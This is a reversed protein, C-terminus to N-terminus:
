VTGAWRTAMARAIGPFTKSRKKGKSKCVANDTKGNYGSSVWRCVPEVIDTSELAPLGNLWLRTKKTYPEGFQFPQIEQSHPPLEWIKMPVPNEIAIRPCDANWIAMFLAKM